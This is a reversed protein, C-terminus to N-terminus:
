AFSIVDGGVAGTDFNVDFLVFVPANSADIVVPSSQNADIFRTGAADQFISTYLVITNSPLQRLRKLLTPMDLDTLYAFELRSEYNQLSQKVIGELERDYSGVGGVVVVHQTGPLLRLAARLTEEPQVMGWVGTFDPDPKLKELMGESSGCFIIPIGPFFKEHSQVMFQLSAPAVAIILDPKRDTYKRIYGDRIRRQSAEDTYLNAALNESYWEIQYRSHSLEAFIAQDMLAIGPSAIQDFDSLVLVRRVEKVDASATTRFVASFALLLLGWVRPKPLPIM